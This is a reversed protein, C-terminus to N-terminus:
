REREDREDNIVQVRIEDDGDGADDWVHKTQRQELEGQNEGKSEDNRATDEEKREANCPTAARNM